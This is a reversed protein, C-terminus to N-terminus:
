KLLMQLAAIVYQKVFQPEIIADVYGYKAANIPDANEEAYREALKESDAKKTGALEIQAGKAADFLAIKSNAFACSYDFGVSKAALVTYGLGIASGYVVSIKANDLLDYTELLKAINKLVLSNQTELDSCIGQADVFSIFPLNYYAALEVFSTIKAVNNENLCVPEQGQTVVAAVSIGGIRGLVCRVEPSCGKAIEVTTGKDFVSAILQEGDCNANLAATAANLDDGNDAVISSYDPLIDLIKVIKGRVDDMGDAEFSVLNTKSLAGAGGVAEKALNKGSRASIVLPSDASLVGNKMFFTFDACAALLASQGYVEGNVVAFQPVVGHLKAAKALLGALGELVSVGEGVQVGLSNLIYVIPTSNKEALELCKLIKACGEKSIGGDLIEFNQAAIYVPNGEITAFGTVVGEGAEEEQYFENKSFSFGAQEVFSDADVLSAIAKRIANGAALVKGRRERLLTIKDM